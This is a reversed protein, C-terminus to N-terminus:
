CLLPHAFIEHALPDTPSLRESWLIDWARKQAFPLSRCGTSLCGARMAALSAWLPLCVLFHKSGYSADHFRAPPEVRGSALRYWEKVM